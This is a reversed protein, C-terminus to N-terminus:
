FRLARAAHENEPLYSVSVKRSKSELVVARADKDKPPILM